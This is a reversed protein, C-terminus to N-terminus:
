IKNKFRMQIIIEGSLSKLYDFKCEIWLLSDNKNQDKSIKKM